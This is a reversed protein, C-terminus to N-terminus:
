NFKTYCSKNGARWWSQVAVSTNERYNTDPSCFCAGHGGQVPVAKQGVPVSGHGSAADALVFAGYQRATLLFATTAIPRVGYESLKRDFNFDQPEKLSIGVSWLNRSLMMQYCLIRKGQCIEDGALQKISVTEPQV